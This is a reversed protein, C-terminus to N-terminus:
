IDDYEGPKTSKEALIEKDFELKRVLREIEKVGVPGTVIVEFDAESSLIGKLLTREGEMKEREKKPPASHSPSTRPQVAPVEDSADDELEDPAM